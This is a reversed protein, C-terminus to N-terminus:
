FTASLRVGLEHLVHGTGSRGTATNSTLNDPVVAQDDITGSRPTVYAMYDVGLRVLSYTLFNKIAVPRTDFGVFAGDPGRMGGFKVSLVAQDRRGKIARAVLLENHGHGYFDGTDILNVGRDLAAQITAVGENDDSAGYVGSMSMCGLGIPFVQPGTKGLPILKNM